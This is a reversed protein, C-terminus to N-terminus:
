MTVVPREERDFMLPLLELRAFPFLELSIQNPEPVARRLPSPGGRPFDAGNLGATEPRRFGEFRADGTVSSLRKRTTKSASAPSNTTAWALRTLLFSRSM